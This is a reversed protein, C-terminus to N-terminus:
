SESENSSSSSVSDSIPAALTSLLRPVAILITLESATGVITPESDPAGGRKSISLDDVRISLPLKGLVSGSASPLHFALWLKFHAYYKAPSTPFTLTNRSCIHKSTRTNTNMGMLLVMSV